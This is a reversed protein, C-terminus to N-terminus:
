LHTKEPTANKLDEEPPPWLSVSTYVSNLTKLMFSPKLTQPKVKAKVCLLLVVSSVAWLSGIAIATICLVKFMNIPTQVRTKFYNAFPIDLQAEESMWLVPVVSDRVNVVPSFEPLRRAVGSLQVRFAANLVFGTTPEVDVYTKHKEPNPHVGDVANVLEQDAELFHPMSIVYPAGKKCNMPMIGSQCSSGECYCKNDPNEEGTAFTNSAMGFRLTKIGHVTVDKEYELPITRCLNPNFLSLTHNQTVGPAYQVGDTGRIENCADGNWWDVVSQNNWEQISAFNDIGNMGSKIKFVGDGIHKREHLIGFTNNVLKTPITLFGEIAKSLDAVMPEHYGEYVLERVTRHILLTENYSEFIGNIIEAVFSRFLYPAYDEVYNIVA